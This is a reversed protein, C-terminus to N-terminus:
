LDTLPQPGLGWFSLGLTRRRFRLGKLRFDLFGRRFKALPGVIALESEDFLDRRASTIRPAWGPTRQTKRGTAKSM